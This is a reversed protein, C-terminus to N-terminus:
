NFYLAYMYLFVYTYLIFYWLFWTYSMADMRDHMHKFLYVIHAYLAQDGLWGGKFPLFKWFCSKFIIYHLNFVRGISSYIVLKFFKLTLFLVIYIGHFCALYVIISVWLDIFCMYAWSDFIMLLYIIYLACFDHLWCIWLIFCHLEISVIFNRKWWFCM